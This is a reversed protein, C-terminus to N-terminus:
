YKMLLSCPPSTDKWDVSKLCYFQQNFDEFSWLWKVEPNQMRNLPNRYKKFKKGAYNCTCKGHLSPTYGWIYFPAGLAGIGGWTIGGDTMSIWNPTNLIKGVVCVSILAFLIRGIKMLRATNCANIKVSLGCYMRVQHIVTIQFLFM